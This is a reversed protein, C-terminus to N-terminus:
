TAPEGEADLAADFQMELPVISKLGGADTTVIVPHGDVKLLHVANRADLPLSGALILRGATNAALLRKRTARRAWWIAGGCILLTVLTLGVLRVVAGFVDPPPPATPPTYEPFPAAFAPLALMLLILLALRQM